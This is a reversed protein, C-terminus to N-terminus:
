VSRPQYPRLGEAYEVYLPHRPSGTPNQGLCHLAHGDALLATTLSDAHHKLRPPLTGHAMVVAASIRAAARVTPHNEPSCFAVGKRRLDSSRTVRFDLVNGKLLGDYGLERTRKIERYITPDDIAADAVSPNMGIWLLWRRPNPTWARALLLRYYGCQSFWARGRVDDGLRLKVKGGADHATKM